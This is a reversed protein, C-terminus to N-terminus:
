PGYKLILMRGIGSPKTTSVEAGVSWLSRTGPIGALTLDVLLYGPSEPAAVRSWAGNAYHVLDQHFTMKSGTGVPRTLDM